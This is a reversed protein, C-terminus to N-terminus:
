RNGTSGLGCVGRETATLEGVEVVQLEPHEVRAFVLQAIRDGATIAIPKPSLNAAIVWCEGRYDSDVTALHVWLGRMAWGSRPRIQAEMGSPIELHVGTSLKVVLGPMVQCDALACLDYGSAGATKREPLVACPALAIRIIQTRTPDDARGDVFGWADMAARLGEALKDAIRLHDAEPTGAEVEVKAGVGDACPRGVMDGNCFVAVRQSPAPLRRHASIQSARWGPPLNGNIGAIVHPGCSGRLEAILTEAADTTKSM